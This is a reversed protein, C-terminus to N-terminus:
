FQSCMADGKRYWGNKREDGPLPPILPVSIWPSIRLIPAVALSYTAKPLSSVRAPPLLAQLLLRQHFPLWLRPGSMQVPEDDEWLRWETVSLGFMGELRVLPRRRRLLALLM